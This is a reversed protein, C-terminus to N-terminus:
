TGLPRQKDQFVFIERRLFFFIKSIKSVLTNKKKLTYAGIYM